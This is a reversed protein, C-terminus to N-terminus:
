DVAVPYKLAAIVAPDQEGVVGYIRHKEFTAKKPLLFVYAKGDGLGKDDTCSRDFLAQDVGMIQLFRAEDAIEKDQRELNAKIDKDSMKYKRKYDSITKARQAASGFCAKVNGHFGVIGGRLERRHGGVFLYNACSSLCQGVVTVKVDAGALVLGIKIGESTLGGESDVILEKVSGDYAAKFRDFEGDEIGGAFALTSRDVRTWVGASAPLVLLVLLLLPAIM